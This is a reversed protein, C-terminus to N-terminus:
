HPRASLDKKIAEMGPDRYAFYAVATLPAVIDPALRGVNVDIPYLDDMCRPEGSCGDQLNFQGDTYRFTYHSNPLEITAGESWFHPRDGITDGVLLVRDGGGKKIAAASIIGASFTYPGILVYTRGRVSGAVHRMFDLTTLLNGGEDFRLDVILHIPKTTAIQTRVTDLFAQMPFGKEDENSRFQVYLAKLDQIAITRFPRDADRLYLPVEGPRLAAVWNREKPASEPSWLRGGEATPAMAAVPVMAISRDVVRGDRLRLQMSVADASKALGLAHLIGASEIWNNLWHERGADSGGLLVKAGDYLARPSQGEIRLVSAGALDSATGTARAVILADPLWLLHLPLRAVPEVRADWRRLGSHANDTLAGVEALEVAFRTATMSGARNELSDLLAEAMSRTPDTYAMEKKLYETRVVRLDALVAARDLLPEDAARALGAALFANACLFALAFRRVTLPQLNTMISDPLRGGRSDTFCPLLTIGTPIM